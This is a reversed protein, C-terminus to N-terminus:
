WVRVIDPVECGGTSSSIAEFRAGWCSGETTDEEEESRSFCGEMYSGMLAELVWSSSSLWEVVEVLESVDLLSLRGWGGFCGEVVGVMRELTRERTRVRVEVTLDRGGAGGGSPPSAAQVATAQEWRIIMFVQPKMLLQAM